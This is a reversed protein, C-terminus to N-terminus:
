GLLEPEPEIFRRQASAGLARVREQTADIILAPRHVGGVLPHERSPSPDPLQDPQVRLLSLALLPPRGLHLAESRLLCRFCLSGGAELLLDGPSPPEECDL